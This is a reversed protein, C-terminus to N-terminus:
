DGENIIEFTSEDIWYCYYQIGNHFCTATKDKCENLIEVIRKREALTAEIKIMDNYIYGCNMTQKLRAM